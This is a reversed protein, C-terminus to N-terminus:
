ESEPAVTITWSLGPKDVGRGGIIRLEGETVRAASGREGVVLVRRDLAIPRDARLQGTEWRNSVSKDHDKVQIFLIPSLDGSLASGREYRTSVVYRGPRIYYGHILPETHGFAASGVGTVTVGAGVEPLHGYAHDHDHPADHSHIGAAKASIGANMRQLAQWLRYRQGDLTGPLTDLWHSHAPHTHTKLAARAQYLATTEAVANITLEQGDIRANVRRIMANFNTEVATLEADSAFSAAPITCRYTIPNTDNATCTVTVTSESAEAFLKPMAFIIFLVALAAGLLYFANRKLFPM